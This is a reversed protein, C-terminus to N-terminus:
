VVKMGATESLDVANVGVREGLIPPSPAVSGTLDLTNVPSRRRASPDPVASRDHGLAVLCLGTGNECTRPREAPRPLPRPAPPATRARAHGSKGARILDRFRKRWQRARTAARSSPRLLASRRPGNGRARDGNWERRREGPMQRRERDRPLVPVTSALATGTAAANGRARFRGQKGLAPL